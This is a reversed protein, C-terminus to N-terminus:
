HTVLCDLGVTFSCSSNIGNSSYAGPVIETSFGGHDSYTAYLRHQICFAVESFVSPYTTVGPCLQVVTVSNADSGPNGQPGTAGQPGDVGNTGSVGTPGPVAIFKPSSSSTPGCATLLFLGLIVAFATFIFLFSKLVEYTYQTM